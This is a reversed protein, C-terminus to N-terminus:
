KNRGNYAAAYNMDLVEIVNRNARCTHIQELFDYNELKAALKNMTYQEHAHYKVQVNQKIRGEKETGTHKSKDTFVTM